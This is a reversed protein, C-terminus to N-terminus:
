YANLYFLDGTDLNYTFDKGYVLMSITDMVCNGNFTGFCTTLTYEFRGTNYGYDIYELDLITGDTMEFHRDQFSLGNMSTGESFELPFINYNGDWLYVADSTANIEYEGFYLAMDTNGSHENYMPEYRCAYTNGNTDIVSYWYTNFFPFLGVFQDNGYTYIGAPWAEWYDGTSYDGNVMYFNPDSMSHLCVYGGDVGLIWDEGYIDKRISIGPGDDWIDTEYCDFIEDYSVIGSDIVYEGTIYNLMDVSYTADGIDQILVIYISDPTRPNTTGVAHCDPTVYYVGYPEEVTYFSVKNDAYVPTAVMTAVIAATLLIKKM